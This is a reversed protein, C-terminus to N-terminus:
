TFIVLHELLVTQLWLLRRSDPHRSEKCNFIQYYVKSWQNNSQCRTFRGPLFYWIDLTFGLLKANNSYPFVGLKFALSSSSFMFIAYHSYQMKVHWSGLCYVGTLNGQQKHRDWTSYAVTSQFMLQIDEIVESKKLTINSQTHKLTKRGGLPLFIM